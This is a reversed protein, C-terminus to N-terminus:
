EGTGPYIIGTQGRATEDTAVGFASERNHNSGMVTYLHKNLLTTVFTKINRSIKNIKCIM